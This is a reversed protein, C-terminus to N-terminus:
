GFDKWNCLENELVKLASKANPFFKNLFNYSETEYYVDLGFELKLFYLNLFASLKNGLRGEPFFTFLSKSNKFSEADYQRCKKSIDECKDRECQDNSAYILSVLCKIFIIIQTLSFITWKM